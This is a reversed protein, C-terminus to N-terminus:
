GIEVSVIIGCITVQCCSFDKITLYSGIVSIIKKGTNLRIVNEDYEAINRCGDLVFTNSFMEIHYGDKGIDEPLDLEQVISNIRSSKNKMFDGKKFYIIIM